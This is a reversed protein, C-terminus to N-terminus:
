VRRTSGAGAANYMTEWESFALIGGHAARSINALFGAWREPKLLAVRLDDPRDVAKVIEGRRLDSGQKARGSLRDVLPQLYKEM